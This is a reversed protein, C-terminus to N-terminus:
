NLKRSKANWNRELNEILAPSFHCYAQELAYLALYNRFLDFPEQAIRLARRNASASVVGSGSLSDVVREIAGDMDGGAVVEDCILRGEPSDCDLRLESMIARRAIRDGTFRPLRLNAAGPIIGEKRAPLSMFADEEALVYDMVLLYQCHGGIAFGEVVAIWPKERTNGTVDDPAADPRALGRYIKNVIGLDRQLYWIFPVKGHYLHTLNIGSGLVRRGRYKGSHVIDGRLVCLQTLPDLIALDVAIEAADLTSADEANLHRPNKQIVHAAKGKRSVEAAGLDVRANRALEPLREATGPHPLLMAHCLHRGADPNALVASVFIGQDIELGEKDRQLLTSEAAVQARTPVLGPVLSAADYVLQEVRIFRSRNQTLRDYVAEVHASLFRSRAARAERKIEEALRAEEVSRARKAPLGALRAASDEWYRLYRACDGAFDKTDRPGEM